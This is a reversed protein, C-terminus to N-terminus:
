GQTVQRRETTRGNEQSGFRYIGNQRVRFPTRVMGVSLLDLGLYRRCLALPRAM